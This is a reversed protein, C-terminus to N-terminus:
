KEFYWGFGLRKLTEKAQTEEKAETKDQALRIAFAKLWRMNRQMDHFNAADTRQKIQYGIWALDILQDDLYFHEQDISKLTM